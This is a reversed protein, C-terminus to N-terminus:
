TAFLTCVNGLFVSVNVSTHDSNLSVDGDKSNVSQQAMTPAHGCVHRTGKDVMANHAMLTVTAHSVGVVGMGHLAGVHVIDLM